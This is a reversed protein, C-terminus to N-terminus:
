AGLIRDLAERAVLRCNPKEEAHGMTTRRWRLSTEQESGICRLAEIAIALKSALVTVREDAPQM